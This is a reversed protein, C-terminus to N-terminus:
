YKRAVVFVSIGIPFNMKRLLWNEFKLVFFLIKNLLPNLKYLQDSKQKQRKLFLRQFIKLLSAPPFLSFNWYSSKKIKFNAKKLLKILSVKSYRRYHQCIEDHQSWLFNFAPVFIILVGKEKLIRNWENLAKEEDKLHELVNDATIIDFTNSKFRTELCDGVSVRRLGRKKCLNIAERSIDIGRIEKFGNEKLFNILHGGACGVDLIKSDPKGGIKQIIKLTVDRRAKFLWYDEELRHRKSEYSKDM